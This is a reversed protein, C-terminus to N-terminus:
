SQHRRKTVLEHENFATKTHELEPIILTQKIHLENSNKHIHIIGIDHVINKCTTCMKDSSAKKSYEFVHTVLVACLGKHNTTSLYYNNVITYRRGRCWGGQGQSIGIGNRVKVM